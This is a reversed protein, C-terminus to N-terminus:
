KKRRRKGGKKRRKSKQIKLSKKWRLVTSFIRVMLTKTGLFAKKLWGAFFAVVGLVILDNIILLRYRELWRSFRTKWDAIKQPIILPEREGKEEEPLSTRKEKPKPSSPPMKEEPKEGKAIKFTYVNGVKPSIKPSVFWGGEEQSRELSFGLLQFRFGLNEVPNFQFQLSNASHPLLIKKAFEKKKKEDVFFVKYDLSVRMKEKPGLSFGEGLSASAVGEKTEAKLTINEGEKTGEIRLDEGEGVWFRLSGQYPIVGRNELEMEEFIGFYFTEEERLGQNIRVFHSTVLLDGLSGETDAQAGVPRTFALILALAGLSSLFRRLNKWMNQIPTSVSM